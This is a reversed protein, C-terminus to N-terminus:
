ELLFKDGSELLLVDGSELLIFNSGGVASALLMLGENYTTAGGYSAVEDQSLVGVLATKAPDYSSIGGNNLGWTHVLDNLTPDAM